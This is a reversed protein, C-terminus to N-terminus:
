EIQRHPDIARLLVSTWESETLRRGVSAACRYVGCRVFQWPAECFLDRERLSPIVEPEVAVCECHAGEVQFYPCAM